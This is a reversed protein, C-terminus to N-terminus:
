DHVNRMPQTPQIRSIQDELEVLAAIAQARSVWQLQVQARPPCQALKHIDARIVSAIVPYGGTTPGEVGLIIPEGSSPVQVFGPLMCESRFLHPITGSLAQDRLRIGARNSQDGVVFRLQELSQIQTQSFLETHVSEVVRLILCDADTPLTSSMGQEPLSDFESTSTGIPLADGRLLPSGLGAHQLSVLSSRSGLLEPTAIGGRICLYSRVGQTLRGIHLTTGANVILPQDYQVERDGRAGCICVVSDQLFEFEGGIMTMEICAAQEPNGVLRNGVRMAVHDFAGSTPVGVHRHECRGSDQVSSLMGPDVVRIEGM